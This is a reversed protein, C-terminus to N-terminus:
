GGYIPRNSGQMAGIGTALSGVGTLLGLIGATPSPQQQQASSYTTGQPYGGLLGTLQSGFFGLRDYPEYTQMKNGQQTTDLLAQAQAQQQAGMQGISAMNQAFLQPQLAALGQQQSAAGGLQALQNQLSAQEAQAQGLQSQGAQGYMNVNQNAQNMAQTGMGMQQQYANAAAQQSNQYGSQRLQGAALAKGLAGSSALQGEAVGFRGGGFANGASAGLQSQQSNLESQMQAMTADIVEQQYPSQFQQYSNPGVYGQAAQTYPDSVGQGAAAAASMSNFDQSAQGLAASGAAPRAAGTLPDYVLNSAAGALNTANDLYPQYGAIGSGTGSIGTFAGTGGPTNDFQATGMGSQNLQMQIAEQQLKNQGAAQPLLGATKQDIPAKMLNALEPGYIGMLAELQPSKESVSISSPDLDKRGDQIQKLIEEYTAM